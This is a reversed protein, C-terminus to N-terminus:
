AAQRTMWINLGISEAEIECCGFASERALREFEDRTKARKLLMHKFTWRVIASNARGLNMGAVCTNIDDQSADKSLDVIWAQGGPRLVRHMENLARVPQAFNKFAARCIIFDFENAAFPM